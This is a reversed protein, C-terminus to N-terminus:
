GRVWALFAVLLSALSAFVPISKYWPVLDAKQAILEAQRRDSNFLEGILRRDEEQDRRLSLIQEGQRVIEEMLKTQRGLHGEIKDFTREYRQNREGQAEWADPRVCEHSM